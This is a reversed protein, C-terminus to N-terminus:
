FKIHSREVNQLNNMIKNNFVSTVFSYSQINTM